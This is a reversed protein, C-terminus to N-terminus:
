KHIYVFFLKLKNVTGCKRYVWRERERERMWRREEKKLNHFAGSDEHIYLTKIQPMRKKQTNINIETSFKLFNCKQEM